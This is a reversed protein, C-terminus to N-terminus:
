RDTIAVNEVPAFSTFYLNVAKVEPPPAPYKAWWDSISGVREFTPYNATTMLGHNGEDTLMMYKKDAASLYVEDTSSGPLRRSGGKGGILTFRTKITLVGGARIAETVNMRLEGTSDNAQGLSRIPAAPAVAPTIAAEADAAPMGPTVPAPVNLAESTNGAKGNQGCAALITLVSLGAIAVGRM